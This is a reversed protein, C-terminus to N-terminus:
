SKFFKPFSLGLCPKPMEKGGEILAFSFGEKRCLSTVREKQPDCALFVDFFQFHRLGGVTWRRFYSSMSLRMGKCWFVCVGVSNAVTPAVDSVTTTASCRAIEPPRAEGVGVSEAGTTDVATAATMASYMVIEPSWDEDVSKAVTTDVATAATTARYKVIEPPWAEGVSKAVTPAVAKARYKAIGPPWAEGVSKAVTTGVAEPFVIKPVDM